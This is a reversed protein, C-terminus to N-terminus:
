MSREVAIRLQLFALWGVSIPGYEICDLRSMEMTLARLAGQYTETLMSKHKIGYHRLILLFPVIEEELLM